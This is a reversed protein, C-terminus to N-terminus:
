KGLNDVELQDKCFTQWDKFILWWLSHGYTEDILKFTAVMKNTLNYIDEAVAVKKENDNIEKGQARLQYKALSFQFNNPLTHSSPIELFEGQVLEIVFPKFNEKETIYSKFTSM